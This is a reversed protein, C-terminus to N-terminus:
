QATACLRKRLIAAHHREHGVIIYALACVSVGSDNATGARAWAANSLRRFLWLSSRRVAEFEAALDALPTRDCEATRAYANQDFGALPTADGRAIRLARYAFVRESDTVHGVVERVSWTYPAHRVLSEDEPTARILALTRAGEQEMASAVDDEHVLRVYADYYHAYETPDPRPM